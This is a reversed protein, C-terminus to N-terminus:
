RYEDNIKMTKKAKSKQFIQLWLFTSELTTCHQPARAVSAYMLPCDSSHRHYWVSVRLGFYLLFFVNFAMDIQLTLDKTFNQCSEIESCPCLLLPFTKLTLWLRNVILVYHFCVSIPESILASSIFLCFMFQRCLCFSWAHIALGLLINM